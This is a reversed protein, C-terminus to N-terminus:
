PTNGLKEVPKEAPKEEPKEAPRAGPQAVPKEETKTAPTASGDTTPKTPAGTPATAVTTAAPKTAPTGAVQNPTAPRARSLNRCAEAIRTRMAYDDLRGAARASKVVYHDSEYEHWSGACDLTLGTVIESPTLAKDGRTLTTEPTLRLYVFRFDESIVPVVNEKDPADMVVFRLTNVRATKTSRAPATTPTTRAKTAQPADKATTVTKPVVIPKAVTKAATKRTAKTITKNTKGSSPTPKAVTKAPPKPPGFPSRLKATTTTAPKISKVSDPITKAAPKPTQAKVVGATIGTVAITAALTVSLILTRNM